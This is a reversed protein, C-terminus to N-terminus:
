PYIVITFLMALNKVIKTVANNKAAGITAASKASSFKETLISMSVLCGVRPSSKSKVIVNSFKCLSKSKLLNSIVKHNDSSAPLLTPSFSVSSRLLSECSLSIVKSKM